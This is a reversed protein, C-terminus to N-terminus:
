RPIHNKIINMSVDLGLATALAVLLVGLVWYGKYKCMFKHFWMFDRLIQTDEKIEIVADHTDAVVNTVLKKEKEGNGVEVYRDEEREIEYQEKGDILMGVIYEHAEDNNMAMVFKSLNEDKIKM